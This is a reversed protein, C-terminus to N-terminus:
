HNASDNSQKNVVLNQVWNEGLKARLLANESLLEDNKKLLEDNKKFLEDNKKLLEYNKKLLEDNKEQIKKILQPLHIYNKEKTLVINYIIDIKCNNFTNPHKKRISIFYLLTTKNMPSKNLPSKNKNYEDLFEEITYSNNCAIREFLESDLANEEIWEISDNIQKETLM